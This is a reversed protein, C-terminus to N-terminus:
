TNQNILTSREVKRLICDLLEDWDLRRGWKREERSFNEEAWEVKRTRWVRGGGESGWRGGGRLVRWTRSEEKM